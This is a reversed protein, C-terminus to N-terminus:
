FHLLRHILYLTYYFNRFTPNKSAKQEATVIEIHVM